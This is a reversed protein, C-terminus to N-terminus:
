SSPLGRVEDTGPCNRRGELNLSSSSTKSKGRARSQLGTAEENGIVKLDPTVLMKMESSRHAPNRNGSPGFDKAVTNSPQENCYSLVFFSIGQLFESLFTTPSMVGGGWGFFFVVLM